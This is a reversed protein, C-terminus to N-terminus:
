NSSLSPLPSFAGVLHLALCAIVRSFFCNFLKRMKFSLVKRRSWLTQNWFINQAISCSLKLALARPPLWSTGQRHIHPLKHFANISPRLGDQTQIIHYVGVIVWKEQCKLCSASIFQKTQSSHCPWVLGKKRLSVLFRAWHLDMQSSLQSLRVTLLYHNRRFFCSTGVQEGCIHRSSATVSLLTHGNWM